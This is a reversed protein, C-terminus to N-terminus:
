AHGGLDARYCYDCVVGCEETPIEGWGNAAKEALAEEDSWESEFTLGCIACRYSPRESTKEEESM